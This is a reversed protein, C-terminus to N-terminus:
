EHWQKDYNIALNIIQAGKPMSLRASDQSGIIDAVQELRPINKLLKKGVEAQTSYLAAGKV